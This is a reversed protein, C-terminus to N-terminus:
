SIFQELHQETRGEIEKDVYKGNRFLFYDPFGEFSPKLSSIIKMLTQNDEDKESDAQITLCVIHPHTEAFNQFKPKATSCHGCYNAQAMIVCTKNKFHKLEGSRTFDKPELYLVPKQLYTM